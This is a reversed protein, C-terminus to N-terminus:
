EDLGGKHYTLATSEVEHRGPLPHEECWERSSICVIRGRSGLCCQCAVNDEPYLCCCTDEGCDHHTVGEGGCNDCEIWITSSGCRGCTPDSYGDPGDHHELGDRVHQLSM